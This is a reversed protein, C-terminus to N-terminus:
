TEERTESVNSPGTTAATLGGQPMPVAKYFEVQIHATCNEGFEDMGNITLSTIKAPRELHDLDNLLGVINVYSGDLKLDVVTAEGSEVPDERFNEMNLSHLALLQSVMKLVPQDTGVRCTYKTQHSQRISDITQKMEHNESQLEPVMQELQQSRAQLSARDTKANMAPRIGLGYAVSAFVLLLTVGLAHIQLNKM